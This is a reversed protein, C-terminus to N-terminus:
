LRRVLGARCGGARAPRAKHFRAHRQVGHPQQRCDLGDPQQGVDHRAPDGRDAYEQPLRGCDALQRIREETTSIGGFGALFGIKRYGLGVVYRVLLKTSEYNEVGVFDFDGGISRDIMVVPVQMRRLYELSFKDSDRTPSWIIGDVRRECFARIIEHEKQPDEDSSSVFVQYGDKRAETDIIHVVDTFFENKIDTVLLGITQTQAQKLGKAMLNPIYGTEEIARLVRQRTDENVPRTGNLVHSVTSISVKALRSVDNITAKM